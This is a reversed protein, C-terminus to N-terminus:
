TLVSPDSYGNQFLWEVIAFHGNKAALLIPKQDNKKYSSPTYKHLWLLGSMSGISALYNPTHHPKLPCLYADVIQLMEYPLHEILHTAM